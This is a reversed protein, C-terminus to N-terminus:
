FEYSKVLSFTILNMNEQVVNEEMVNATTYKASISIDNLESNFGLSSGKMNNHGYSKSNYFSPSTDSGNEFSEVFLSFKKKGFEVQTLLGKNRGEPAKENFLYQGSAKVFYGNDFTFLTLVTSNTGEFGYNFRTANGSGEVSNGLEKSNEAVEQSLDAFKFHSINADVKFKDGFEVGITEMGFFPNGDDVGGLRKALRNNSPISQTAKFYLWGFSVKEEVGAFANNSILLPSNHNGQDLAGAKVDFINYTYHVGASELNVEEQPEYEAITGTSENAGTELLLASNFFFKANESIADELSVGIHYGLVRARLDKANVVTAKMGTTVHIKDLVSTKSFGSVPAILLCTLLSYYHKKM